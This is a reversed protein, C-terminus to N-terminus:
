LQGVLTPSAMGRCVWRWSRGTATWRSPLRSFTADMLGCPQMSKQSSPRAQLLPGFFFSFLKLCDGLLQMFHCCAPLCLSLCWTRHSELGGVVVRTPCIPGQSWPFRWALFSVVVSFRTHTLSQLFCDQSLRTGLKYLMLWPWFLPSCVYPWFPRMILLVSTSINGTCHDIM